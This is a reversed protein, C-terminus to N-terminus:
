IGAAALGRRQNRRAIVLACCGMCAYCALFAGVYKLGKWGFYQHVSILFAVSCTMAAIQGCAILGIFFRMNGAMLGSGAICRGLVGCHHDFDVVCRQCHRCHHAQSKAGLTLKMCVNTAARDCDPFVAYVFSGCVHEEGFGPARPPRRWVCCRVCYSSGPVSELEQNDLGDLPEGSRLRDAVEPPMPKTTIPTRKVVGPDVALLAAHMVVACMACANVIATAHPWFWAPENTVSHALSHTFVLFGVITFGVFSIGGLVQRLVAADPPLLPPLV